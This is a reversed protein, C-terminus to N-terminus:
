EGAPPSVIMGYLIFPQINYQGDPESLGLGHLCIKYNLGGPLSLSVPSKSASVRKGEFFSKVRGFSSGGTGDEGCLVNGIIQVDGIQRGFVVVVQLGGLAVTPFVVDSDTLQAGVLIIPNEGGSELGELRYWGQGERRQPVFVCGKAPIFQSSM